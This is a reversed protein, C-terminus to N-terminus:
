KAFLKTKWIENTALFREERHPPGEGCIRMRVRLPESSENVIMIESPERGQDFLFGWASLARASISGNHFVVKSLEENGM